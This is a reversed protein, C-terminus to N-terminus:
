GIVHRGTIHLLLDKARDSGVYKQHTLVEAVPTVRSDIIM